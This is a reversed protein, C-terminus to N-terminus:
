ITKNTFTQSFTQPDLTQSFTQQHERETTATGFQNTAANNLPRPMLRAPLCYSCDIIGIVMILFDIRIIAM